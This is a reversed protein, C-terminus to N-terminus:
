KYLIKVQCNLNEKVPFGPFGFSNFSYKEQVRRIQFPFIFRPLLFQLLSHCHINYLFNSGKRSRQTM